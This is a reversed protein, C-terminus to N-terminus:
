RSARQHFRVNRRKHGPNSIGDREARMDQWVRFLARSEDDGTFPLLGSPMRSECYNAYDVWARRENAIVAQTEPHQRMLNEYGTM